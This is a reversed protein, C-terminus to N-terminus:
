KRQDIAACNRSIQILKLSYRKDAALGLPLFWSCRRRRIFRTPSFWALLHGTTTGYPFAKARGPRARLNNGTKTCGRCSKTISPGSLTTSICGALAISPRRSTGIQSEPTCGGVVWQQAICRGRYAPLPECDRRDGIPRHSRWVVRHRCARAGGPTSSRLAAAGARLM